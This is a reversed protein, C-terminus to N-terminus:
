GTYRRWAERDPTSSRDLFSNNPDPHSQFNPSPNVTHNTQQALPTSSRRVPIKLLNTWLAMDDCEIDCCHLRFNYHAQIELLLNKVKLNYEAILPEPIEWSEIDVDYFLERFYEDCKENFDNVVLQKANQM